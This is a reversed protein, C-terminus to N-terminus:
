FGLPFLRLLALLGMGFIVTAFLNKTKYAVLFTPVAVWLYPNSFKINLTGDKVLLDSALMASLVPVPVYKLWTTVVPSLKRGSLLKVPIARTLANSAAMLLSIAVRNEM